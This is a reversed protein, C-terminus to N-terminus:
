TKIQVFSFTDERQIQVFYTRVNNKKGLFFFFFSCKVMQRCFTVSVESEKEEGCCM